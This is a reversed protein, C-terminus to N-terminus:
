TLLLLQSLQPWRASHAVSQGGALTLADQRWPVGLDPVAGGGLFLGRGGAAGQQAAGGGGRHSGHVRDVVRMNLIWQVWASILDTECCSVM